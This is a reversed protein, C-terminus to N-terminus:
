LSLGYRRASAALGAVALVGLVVPVPVGMFQPAGDILQVLMPKVVEATVFTAGSLILVATAPLALALFRSRFRARGIDAAVRLAFAPDSEPATGEAFLGSIQEDTMAM